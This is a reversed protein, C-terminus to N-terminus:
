FDYFALYEPSRQKILLRGKLIPSYEEVMPKIVIGERLTDGFLSKGNSAQQITKGNLFKDLTINKAILPVKRISSKELATANVYEDDMLIDFAIVEIKPLKYINKQIGPGVMEGRITLQQVPDNNRNVAAALYGQAYEILKQERAVRWFDHQIGPLEQISYYRQNVFVSGDKRVTVSFNTGELKETIMVPVQRAILDAIVEPYYDAGEIDFVPVGEPLKVLNGAHCPVPPSDYKTINLATALDQGLQVQGVLDVFDAVSRVLGQSIEGRLKVTKVRNQDSGALMGKLGLKDILNQPIISDIPFYVVKSGVEYLGRQSVFQFGLNNVKVLDLRDANPHKKVEIIEHVEVKFTSM